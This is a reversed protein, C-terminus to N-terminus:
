YHSEPDNNAPHHDLSLRVLFNAVSAFTLAEPAPTPVLTQIWIRFIFLFDYKDQLGDRWCEFKEMQYVELFCVAFHSFWHNGPWCSPEPESPLPLQKIGSRSPNNITEEKSGVQTDLYNSEQETQKKFIHKNLICQHKAQIYEAYLHWIGPVLTVSLQSSGHLHQSNLGSGRSSCCTSKVVQDM